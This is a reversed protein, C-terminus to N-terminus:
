RRATPSEHHKSRKEQDDDAQRAVGLVALAESTPMARPQPTPWPLRVPLGARTSRCVRLFGGSADGTAGRALFDVLRERTRWGGSGLVDHVDDQEPMAAGALWAALNLRGPGSMVAASKLVIIRRTGARLTTKTLVDLELPGNTSAGAWPRVMMVAVRLPASCNSGRRRVEDLRERHCPRHSLFPRM